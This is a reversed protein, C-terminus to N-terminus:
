CVAVKRPLDACGHAVDVGVACATDRLWNRPAPLAPVPRKACGDVLRPLTYCSISRAFRKQGHDHRRIKRVDRTGRQGHVCSGRAIVGVLRKQRGCGPRCWVVMGGYCWAGYVCTGAFPTLSFHISACNACERLNHMARGVSTHYPLM